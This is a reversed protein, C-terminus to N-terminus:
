DIDLYQWYFGGAKIKRKCARSIHTSPINLLEAASKISGFEKIVNLNNDLQQVPKIHKNKRKIPKQELSFTWLFGHSTIREGRCCRLLDEHAWGLEDEVSQATRWQKIFNGELDWQCVSIGTQLYEGSEGGLTENYGNNYTNYLNIYYQEKEKLVENDINDELVEFSFNEVGYKHIAKNITQSNSTINKSRYKHEKWREEVSRITLGIYSNGNLKNTIKYITGM